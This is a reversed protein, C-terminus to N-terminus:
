VSRQFCGSGLERYFNERERRRQEASFLAQLGQGQAKQGIQQVLRKPTMAATKAREYMPTYQRLFAQQGEGPHKSGNLSWLNEWGVAEVARSVLLPLQHCLDDHNFQGVSYLLDSVMSWAQDPPILEPHTIELMLERIEAVSPPWKSTAIHKQIALSVVESDDDAFITTWVGITSKVTDPSQFRDYNPYAAIVIGLLKATDARTM